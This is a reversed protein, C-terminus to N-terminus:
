ISMRADFQPLALTSFRRPMDGLTRFYKRISMAVGAVDGGRFGSETGALRQFSCLLDDLAVDGLQHLRHVACRRALVGCSGRVLAPHPTPMGVLGVLCAGSSKWRPLM